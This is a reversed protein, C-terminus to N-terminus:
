LAGDEWPGWIAFTRGLNGDGPKSTDGQINVFLTEGNPSFTAGAWERENFLNLAFDFVQGRQTLGRMFSENDGDECLVIGGRPSVSINDPNDLEVEGPSEYILILQGGSNGRPRYEWVQGKEAEGGDTSNFFVSGEGYWCGELRSFIAGGQAAGQEYVALPNAGATAPDPDDIDVWEVPMPRGVPQGTRTDYNDRGRIKLLQLRGGDALSEPSDPIFRYFGSTGRDETEYIIDTDPDVAIAEHVFRGMATLAVPEIEDTASAPVEFNYGHSRQWGQERGATTEECSLWSGRPTPGGACNVITGQLSVFDRVLERNGDPRVELSTTGGPGLGDYRPADASGDLGSTGASNRDEHNRILRVNGNPLAFAAMGDHAKPTENGDSMETGEVGFVAYSFGEPLALLPQRGLEPDSNVPPRGSLEGYGVAQNQQQRNVGRGGPAATASHALFAQSAGSVALGGAALASGRLFGRRSVGSSDTKDDVSM